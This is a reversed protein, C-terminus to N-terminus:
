PLLCFPSLSFRESSFKTLSFVRKGSPLLTKGYKGNDLQDRRDPPM